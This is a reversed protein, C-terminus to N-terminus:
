MGEKVFGVASDTEKLKITQQTGTDTGIYEMSASALIPLYKRLDDSEDESTVHVSWIEAPPRGEEMERNERASIRLYKEYLAVPTMMDQYGVMETRTPEYVPVTRYVPNGAKDTGIAVTDYRVGGGVQAYVPRTSREMVVRPPEVGYDIEVVMDASGIDPAEYMGKASLATRIYETAEQHRLSGEDANPNVSRIRYSLVNPPQPHSISDVKVRYSATCGSSLLLAGLVSVTVMRFQM